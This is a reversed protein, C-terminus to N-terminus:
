QQNNLDGASSCSGTSMDDCEYLYSTDSIVNGNKSIITNLKLKEYNESPTFNSKIAFPETTISGEYVFSHIESGSHDTLTTSIELDEVDMLDSTQICSVVTSEEGSQIPFEKVFSFPTIQDDSVDRALRLQVISKADGDLVEIQVLTVTSDLVPVKYDVFASSEAQIEISTTSTTHINEESIGDSQYTTILVETVVDEKRPNNVAASVNISEGSEYLVQIPVFESNNVDDIDIRAEITPTFKYNEGNVFVVERDFMTPQYDEENNLHFQAVLAPRKNDHFVGAIDYNNKDKLFFKAQYNGSPLNNPAYWEFQLPLVEM